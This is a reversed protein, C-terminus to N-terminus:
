SVFDAPTNCNFANPCRAPCPLQPQMYHQFSGYGQNIHDHDSRKSLQPPLFWPIGARSTTFPASAEEEVSDIWRGNKTVGWGRLRPCILYCCLKGLRNLQCIWAFDLWHGMPYLCFHSSSSSPSMMVKLKKVWCLCKRASSRCSV